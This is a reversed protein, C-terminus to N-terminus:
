FFPKPAKGPRSHWTGLGCKAAAVKVSYKTVRASGASRVSEQACLDGPSRAVLCLVRLAPHPSRLAPMAGSLQCQQGVAHCRQKGPSSATLTPAQARGAKEGGTREAGCGLAKLFCAPQPRKNEWPPQTPVHSNLRQFRLPFSRLAWTAKNWSSLAVRLLPSETVDCLGSWECLQLEEIVPFGLEM